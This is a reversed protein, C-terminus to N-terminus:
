EVYHPEISLIDIQGRTSELFSEFGSPILAEKHSNGHGISLDKTGM